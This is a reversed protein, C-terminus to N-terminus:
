HDASSDPLKGLAEMEEEKVEQSTSENSTGGVINSVFQQINFSSATQNVGIKELNLGFGGAVSLLMSSMEPPITVETSTPNYEMGKSTLEKATQKEVIKQSSPVVKTGDENTTPTMGKIHGGVAKINFQGLFWVEPPIRDCVEDESIGLAKVANALHVQQIPDAKLKKKVDEFNPM